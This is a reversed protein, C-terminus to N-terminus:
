YLAHTAQSTFIRMDGTPLVGGSSLLGWLFVGIAPSRIGWYGIMANVLEKGLNLFHPRVEIDM